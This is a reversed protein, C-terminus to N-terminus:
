EFQPFLQHINGLELFHFFSVFLSIFLDNKIMKKLLASIAFAKIKFRCLTITIKTHFSM